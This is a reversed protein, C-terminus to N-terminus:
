IKLIREKYEPKLSAVKGVRKLHEGSEIIKAITTM